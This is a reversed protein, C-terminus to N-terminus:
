KTASASLMEWVCAETDRITRASPKIAEVNAAKILGTFAGLVMAMLADADVKKIVGERQARRVFSRAGAALEETVAMSQADMYAAHHHTELFKFALPHEAAVNM